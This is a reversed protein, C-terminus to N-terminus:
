RNILYAAPSSSAGATRVSCLLRTDSSAGRYTGIGPLVTKVTAFIATARALFAAEGSPTQEEISQTLRTESDDEALFLATVRFPDDAATAQLPIKFAFTVVGDFQGAAPSAAITRGGDTANRVVFGYPLVGVGSPAVVAAAESESLVQLVDAQNPIIQGNVQSVDGTPLIETAIAPDAATGDFRVMSAIASGGLTSDTTAAFFTLNQRPTDYATGDVQANRVRFTAWIYRYGGAGRVGQTFSGTTLPSLEITGDGSGGGSVPGSLSYSIGRAHSPAALTPASASALMEPSGIGSLTVEVLAPALQTTPQGTPTPTLPAIADRQCAAVALLALAALLSLSTRTQM